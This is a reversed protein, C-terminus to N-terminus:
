EGVLKFLHSKSIDIVEIGLINNEIDKDVLVNKTIKTTESIKGSKFTFYLSNVKKDYKINM